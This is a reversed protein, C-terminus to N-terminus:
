GARLHEYYMHWLIELQEPSVGRAKAKQMFVARIKEENSGHYKLWLVSIQYEPINRKKAKAFFEDRTDIGMLGGTPSKEEINMYIYPTTFRYEIGLIREEVLFDTWAEVTAEPVGLKKAADNITLKKQNKVLNIFDDVDTKLISSDAEM